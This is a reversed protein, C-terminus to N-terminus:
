REQSNRTLIAPLLDWETVEREQDVACISAM